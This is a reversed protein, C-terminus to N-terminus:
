PMYGIIFRRIISRTPRPFDYLLEDIVMDRAVKWASEGEPVDVDVDYGCLNGEVEDFTDSYDLDFNGCSLTGEIETFTTSWEIEIRKGGIRGDIESFTESIDLNYKVSGWYGTIEDFSDSLEIDYRKGNWNGELDTATATMGSFLLLSFLSLKIM